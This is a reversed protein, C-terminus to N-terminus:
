ISELFWKFYIDFTSEFVFREIYKLVLFGQMNSKNDFLPLLPQASVVMIPNKSKGRGEDGHLAIPIASWWSSEHAGHGGYFPHSPDVVKYRQWFTHLEKRFSAAEDLSKGGLFFHGGYSFITKVWDVLRLVPYQTLVQHVRKRSTRIWCQVTSVKVPLQHGHDQVLKHLNRCAHSDKKSKACKAMRKLLPDNVGWISQVYM